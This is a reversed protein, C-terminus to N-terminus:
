LRRSSEARMEREFAEAEGCYEHTKDECKENHSAIDLADMAGNAAGEAADYEAEARAVDLAGPAWLPDGERWGDAEARAKITRLNERAASLERERERRRTRLEDVSNDM